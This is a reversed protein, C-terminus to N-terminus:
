ASVPSKSSGLVASMIFSAGLIVVFFTVATLATKGAYSGQLSATKPQALLKPFAYNFGVSALVSFIALLVWTM